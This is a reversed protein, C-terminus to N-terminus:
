ERDEKKEKALRYIRDACRELQERTLAGSKLAAEIDTRDEAQGPMILDNGAAICGHPSAPGYKEGTGMGGTSLWDTMVVGDFGWEERLIGQLLPADNATHVGNLLNYSTMLAKPASARLCVEFAKLYIERLTRESMNSSSFNRDTEQNNCCFHKVAVGCGRNRQVGRTVAAATMGSLYPDESYYEFNRGCLPDRQINLAPALWIDVGFLKMEEGVVAGMEECLPMNWSQALATGVPIATCYQYCINDGQPAESATEPLLGAMANDLPLVGDETLRYTKSLRLGAPGDALVLPPIQEDSCTEGAAGAVKKGSAGIQNRLGVDNFAGICLSILRDEPMAKVEESVPPPTHAKRRFVPAFAKTGCLPIEKQEREPVSLTECSRGGVPSCAEGCVETEVLVSFACVASQLSNGFYFVYEGAPLAWSRTKEQWVAMDEAAVALTVIESEGPFLERTKEFAVLKRFSERPAGRRACYVEVVEKGRFKGTNVVEAQLRITNGDTEFGVPMVAFDTYGLGSGFSLQPLKAAADFYRYGVFLGETYDVENKTGFSRASPYNEYAGAWTATLKGSPVSKGTLLDAFVNGTEAGLQGLLLINETEEWVPTLDVPGGTNLVLMFKNKGAALRRIDRVEEPLLRYDGEIDRRDLGEASDRSIVYLDLEGEGALPLDYSVPPKPTFMLLAEVFTGLADAQRQLEGYFEKQSREALADYASLWDETMVTFGANKLGEEVSVAHRVNVDGSGKGGKVTRRAGSGYLNVRCPHVPFDGNRKLFLTCEAASTRVAEAHQTEHPQVAASAIRKM